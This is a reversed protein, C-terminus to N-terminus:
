LGLILAFSILSLEMYVMAGFMIHWMFYDVMCLGCDVLSLVFITFLPWVCVLFVYPFIRLV